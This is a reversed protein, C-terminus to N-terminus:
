QWLYQRASSGAEVGENTKVDDGGCSLLGDVSPFGDGVGNDERQDYDENSVDTRRCDDSEHTLSLVSNKKLM